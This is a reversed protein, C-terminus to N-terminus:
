TDIIIEGGIKVRKGTSTAITAPSATEKAKKAPKIVADAVSSLAGGVGPILNLVPALHKKNRDWAKSLWSM